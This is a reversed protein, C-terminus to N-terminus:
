NLVFPQPTKRFLSVLWYRQPFCLRRIRCVYIHDNSVEAALTLSVKVMNDICRIALAAFHFVEKAVDFM